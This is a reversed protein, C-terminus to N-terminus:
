ITDHTHSKGNKDPRGTYEFESKSSLRFIETKPIRRERGSKVREIQIASATIFLTWDVLCGGGIYWSLRGM